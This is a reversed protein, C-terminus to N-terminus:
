GRLTKYRENRWGLVCIGTSWIARYDPEGGTIYNYNHMLLTWLRQGNTQNVQLINEGPTRAQWESKYKLSTASINEELMKATINYKPSSISDPLLIENQGFTQNINDASIELDIPCEDVPMLILDFYYINTATATSDGYIWFYLDYDYSSSEYAEPITLMGFDLVSEVAQTAVQRNPSTYVINAVNGVCMSIRTIIDGNAPSNDKVRLFVRYTGTYQRSEPDTVKWYGIAANSLAGGPVWQHAYYWPTNAATQMLGLSVTYTVSPPLISTHTALFALFDTGRDLSRLGLLFKTGVLIFTASSDYSVDRRWMNYLAQAPYTGEVQDAPIDFYPCQQTYIPDSVIAPSVAGAAATIRFRIWWATVGNVADTAWPNAGAIYDFVVANPGTNAFGNTDDQFGYGAVPLAGWAGAGRSYEITFALGVMATGINFVINHFPSETGTNEVGVYLIDGVAPAVPFLVTGTIGTINTYGPPAADYRFVHSIQSDDWYNTIWVRKRDTNEAITITSSQLEIATGDGPINESWLGHEIILTVEDMSGNIGFPADFYDNLQPIQWDYILAYQSYDQCEPRIEIWVMDTQFDNLWYAVGKDLLTTFLNVLQTTELQSGTVFSLLFTDIINDFQKAFLQRGQAYPSGSWSGGGKALALQPLWERLYPLVDITGAKTGDTIRFRSWM